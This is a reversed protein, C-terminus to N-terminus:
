LEKLDRFVTRRSTGFLRSLDDVTYRKGVQLTMLIQMLRKLRDSKM